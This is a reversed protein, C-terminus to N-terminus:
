LGEKGSEFTKFLTKDYTAHITACTDYWWGQVKEQTVNVESFNAIIEVDFANVHKGERLTANTEDSCAHVMDIRKLTIVCEEDFANFEIITVFIEDDITNVRSM